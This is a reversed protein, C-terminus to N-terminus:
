KILFLYIIICFIIIVPVIFIWEAIARMKERFELGKVKEEPFIKYCVENIFNYIDEVFMEDIKDIFIKRVKKM